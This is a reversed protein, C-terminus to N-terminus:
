VNEPTTELLAIFEDTTMFPEDPLYSPDYPVDNFNSIQKSWPYVSTYLVTKADFDEVNYNIADVLHDITFRRKAAVKIIRGVNEHTLIIRGHIPELTM